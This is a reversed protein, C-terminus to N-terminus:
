GLFVKAVIDALLPLSVGQPRPTASSANLRYDALKSVKGRKGAEAFAVLVM